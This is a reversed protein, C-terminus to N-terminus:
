LGAFGYRTQGGSFTNRVLYGIQMILRKVNSMICVGQGDKEQAPADQTATTSVKSTNVASKRQRKLDLFVAGFELKLARAVAEMLPQPMLRQEHRTAYLHAPNINVQKALKYDSELGLATKTAEIYEAPKM